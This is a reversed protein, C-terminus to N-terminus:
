LVIFAVSQHHWGMDMPPNMEMAYNKDQLPGKVGIVELKRGTTELWEWLALIEHERYGPYNVLDDFLLVCGPAIYKDLLTLADIAGAYLDCDIHLYTIDVPNRFRYHSKIFKPLSENFLGQVLEVNERVEPFRGELSFEGSPRFEGWAEPLGTFTDFGYVKNNPGMQGDCNVRRYEAVGNLTAGEWVGFEFWSGGCNPHPKNLIQHPSFIWDFAREPLQQRDLVRKMELVFEKFSKSEPIIAPKGSISPFYPSLHDLKYDSYQKLAAHGIAQSHAMDYPAERPPPRGIAGSLLWITFLAASASACYVVGKNPMFKRQKQM